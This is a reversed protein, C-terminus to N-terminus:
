FTSESMYVIPEGLLFHLSAPARGVCLLRQIPEGLFLIPEGMVLIPLSAPVEGFTPKCLLHLIPECMFLFSLKFIVNQFPKCMFLFSPSAPAIGPILDSTQECIYLHLSAASAVELLEPLVFSPAIPAEAAQSAPADGPILSSIPKGM